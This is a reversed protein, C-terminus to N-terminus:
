WSVRRLEAEVHVRQNLQLSDLITWIGLHKKLADFPRRYLRGTILQSDLAGRSGAVSRFELFGAALQILLESSCIGTSGYIISFKCPM